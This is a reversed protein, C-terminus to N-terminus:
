CCDEDIAASDGHSRHTTPQWEQCTDPEVSQGPSSGTYTCDLSSSDSRRSSREPGSMECCMGCVIRGYQSDKGLVSIPIRTTLRTSDVGYLTHYEVFRSVPRLTWINRTRRSRGHCRSFVTPMLITQTSNLQSSKTKILKLTSPKYLM